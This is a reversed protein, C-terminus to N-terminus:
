ETPEKIEYTNLLSIKNLKAIFKTIKKYNKTLENSNLNYFKKNAVLFEENEKITNAAEKIDKTASKPNDELYKLMVILQESLVKDFEQNTINKRNISNFDKIYKKGNSNKNIVNAVIKMKEYKKNLSDAINNESIEAKLMIEKLYNYKSYYIFTTCLLIIIIILIIIVINM